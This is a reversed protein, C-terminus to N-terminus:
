AKVELQQERCRGPSLDTWRKFARQFAAPSSFGLLFAIETFNHRTDKVYSLALAHRTEDLLDAFKHEEDQLRRRLTWGTMGMYSAIEQISPTAGSLHESILEIVRDSTSKGKELAAKLAACQQQMANHTAANHFRSARGSAKKSLILANRKSGFEIPCDFLEEYAKKYDDNQYEIEVKHAVQQEDSLWRIFHLWSSLTSDVVFYNYANYPSISYFHCVSRGNEILYKSHGRSNQSSLREYHILTRMADGANEATSATYGSIGMAGIHIHKGMELGFDKRGSLKIADYGMRMFKPISIRANATKLFEPALGYKQYLPEPARGLSELTKGLTTVFTVSIDGLPIQKM